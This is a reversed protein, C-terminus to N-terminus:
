YLQTHDTTTSVDEWAEVYETLQQNNKRYNELSYNGIPLYKSELYKPTTKLGNTVEEYFTVVPSTRIYIQTTQITHNEM